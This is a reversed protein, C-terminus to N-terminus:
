LEWRRRAAPFHKQRYHAFIANVEPQGSRQGLLQLKETMERDPAIQELLWSLRNTEKRGIVYAAAEELHEELFRTYMARHEGSLKWPHLLRGFVLEVNFAFAEQALAYEFCRDYELYHFARNQFCNRYHIGSGHVHTMLIRAPTNEVGEEFFEPFMLVAQEEGLLEVRLEQSLESLVEKLCSPVGAEMTVELFRIKHCGTFAGSGVDEIGSGLRLTQLKRCNYFAYRGIRRIGPPLCIERHSGQSCAYPALAYVKVGEVEPPIVALEQEEDMKEIVVGTQDVSYTFFHFRKVEREM